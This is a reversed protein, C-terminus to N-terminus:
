LIADGASSAAIWRYSVITTLGSQCDVDAARGRSSTPRRRYLNVAIVTDGIM